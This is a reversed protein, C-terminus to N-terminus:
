AETPAERAPLRSATREDAAAQAEPPEGRADMRARLWADVEELVWGVSQPGLRIRKPFLGRKELRGLHVPHLGVKRRLEPKRIIRLGRDEAKEPPEVSRRDGM